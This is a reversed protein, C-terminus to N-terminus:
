DELLNGYLDVPWEDHREHKYPSVFELCDPNACGDGSLSACDRSKDVWSTECSECHFFRYGPGWTKKSM